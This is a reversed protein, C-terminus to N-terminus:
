GQRRGRDPQQGDLGLRRHRHDPRSLHGPDLSDTTAGHGMGMRFHGGKKPEARAATTFMTDAAAATFGAALALQVFDRRSVRGKRALKAAMDLKYELEKM